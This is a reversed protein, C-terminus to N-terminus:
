RQYCLPLFAVSTMVIWHEMVMFVAAAYGSCSSMQFHYITSKSRNLLKFNFRLISSSFDDLRTWTVKFLSNLISAYSLALPKWVFM